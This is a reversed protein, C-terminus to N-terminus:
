RRMYQQFEEFAYLNISAAVGIRQGNEEVRLIEGRCKLRVPREPEIHELVLIFEIPQGPSFSRDTEFFVGSGSFDRTIGKGSELEVPLKGIHRPERRQDSGKM